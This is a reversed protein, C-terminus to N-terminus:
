TVTAEKPHRESPATEPAEAESPATEPAEATAPATAPAVATEPAEEKAHRERIKATRPRAPLWQACSAVMARDAERAATAARAVENRM